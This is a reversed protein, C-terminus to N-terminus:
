EVTVASCVSLLVMDFPNWWIAGGARVIVTASSKLLAKSVIFMYVCVRILQDNVRERRLFLSLLVNHNGNLFRNSPILQCCNVPRYSRVIGGITPQQRQFRPINYFHM